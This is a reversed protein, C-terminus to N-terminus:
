QFCDAIELKQCNWIVRGLVPTSLSKHSRLNRNDTYCGPTPLVSASAIGTSWGEGVKVLVCVVWLAQQICIRIPTSPHLSAQSQANRVPGLCRSAAATQGLRPRPELCIPWAGPCVKLNSHTPNVYAAMVLAEAGCLGDCIFRRLTSPKLHLM